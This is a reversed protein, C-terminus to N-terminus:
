LPPLSIMPGSTPHNERPPSALKSIVTSYGSALFTFDLLAKAASRLFGCGSFLLTPSCLPVLGVPDSDWLVLRVPSSSQHCSFFLAFVLPRNLRILVPVLLPRIIRRHSQHRRLRVRILPGLLQICVIRTQIRLKEPRSLRLM